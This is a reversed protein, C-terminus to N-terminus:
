PTRATDLVTVPRTTEMVLAYSIHAFTRFVFALGSREEPLTVMARRNDEDRSQTTRSSRYLALVHGTELKDASGRNIAIISFRGAENVGGYVSIVKAAINTEPKHPLYNLLEPRTAPLLRDGRGVEQKIDVIEFLAQDGPQIQRATGLHFAEYGLPQKSEPDLLAKGRRYVHWMEIDAAAGAVYAHDGRALFVRGEQTGVIRAVDDLTHEEVILPQALFPEIFNAPISTIAKSNAEVYQQPALKVVKALKLQPDGDTGNRNLVIIDGPTLRQPKRLEDKNLRWLEPWRWPDKLFRAAISWLTDGPVVIYRDPAQDALDIAAHAPSLTAAVSLLLASIIRRISM